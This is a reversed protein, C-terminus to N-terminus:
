KRIGLEKITERYSNIDNKEIYKLLKKRKGVLKILARETNFDKKHIKLHQSLHNIRFTFLAVQGKTTGTDAESKGYKSFINKKIEASLYM